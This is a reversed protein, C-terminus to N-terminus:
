RTISVPEGEALLEVWTQGPTLGIVQGDLRRYVTVDGLAARSWTAKIRRGDEFVMAEGSGTFQGVSNMTGIGGEYNIWQVIVNQPSLRVGTATIDPSGFISRDWSATTSDWTWTVPYISPFDATFSAVATGGVPADGHRYTFLARPPVPRGGFAFIKPAILYLNNPAVRRDDRFMGDGAITEDVLTVPAKEIADVAYPAGGSYAFIGGIPTVIGVDTPRVSRVPGIRHPAYSNFIAALRTIGGNVIEEYVVDAHNVGWLPRADPTNEIKVTLAPRTLALGNPDALGTLPALASSVTTSTTTPTGTTTTTTAGPVPSYRDAVVAGAIVVLLFAVTLFARRM